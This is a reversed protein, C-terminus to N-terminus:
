SIKQMKNLSLLAVYNTLVKRLQLTLTHMGAPIKLSLQLIMSGELWHMIVAQAEWIAVDSLKVPMILTNVIHSSNVMSGVFLLM